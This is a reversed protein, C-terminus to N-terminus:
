WPGLSQQRSMMWMLAIMALVTLSVVTVLMMTKARAAAAMFEDQQSRMVGAMATADRVVQALWKESLSHGPYDALFHRYRTAAFLLLGTKRCHQVFTDHAEDSAPFSEVIKWLERARPQHPRALEGYDDWPAFGPRVLGFVLGCRHCSETEHQRHGCKPCKVPPLDTPQVAIDPVSYEDRPTPTPVVPPAPVPPSVSIPKPSEGGRQLVAAGEPVMALGQMAPSERNWEQPANTADTATAPPPGSVLVTMSDANAVILAMSGDPLMVHVGGCPSCTLRLMGGGPDVHVPAGTHGCRSCTLQLM